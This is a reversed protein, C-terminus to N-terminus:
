KGAAANIRTTKSLRFLCPPDGLPQLQMVRGLVATPQVHRFHLKAHQAPLTQIASQRRRLFQYCLNGRPFLLAVFGPCLDVPGKADGICAFFEM